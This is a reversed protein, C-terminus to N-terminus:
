SITSHRVQLLKKDKRTKQQRKNDKATKQQRKNRNLKKYVYEEYYM